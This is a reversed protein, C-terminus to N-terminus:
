GRSAGGRRKSEYLDADAAAILAAMDNAHDPLAAAGISISLELALQKAPLLCPSAAVAARLREAVVRGSKLDTEILLVAFEDGGFRALVDVQRLQGALVKAVHRLVEDGVPHGHTDNIVKFRNLDMMLVCLPRQFRVSRQWEEALRRDFERRNVTKTLEDVAAQEALKALIASMKLAYYVARELGRPNLDSKEIYDVAGSDMAALDTEESTNGTLLIVPTPCHLEKAERLLQLGDKQDLRYDLLCLAYEGTVLSELGSAYNARHDVIFRERRFAAIMFTILAAITNDDDVLLIKRPAPM